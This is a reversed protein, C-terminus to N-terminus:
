NSHGWPDDHKLKIEVNKLDSCKSEVVTGVGNIIDNKERMPVLLFVHLQLCDESAVTVASEAEDDSCQFHFLFYISAELLNM